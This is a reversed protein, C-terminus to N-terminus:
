ISNLRAGFARSTPPCEQVCVQPTPCGSTLASPRLCEMINFFLLRPRGRFHTFPSFSVKCM